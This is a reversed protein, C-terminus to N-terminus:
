NHNRSNRYSLHGANNVLISLPGKNPSNKFIQGRSTPSRGRGCVHAAATGGHSVIQQCTAKPAALSITWSRSWPVKSRSSQEAIQGPWNRQGRGHHCCDKWGSPLIRKPQLQTM